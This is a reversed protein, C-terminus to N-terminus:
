EEVFDADIVDDDGDNTNIPGSAGEESQTNAYMSKAVEQLADNLAETAVKFSSHDDAKLAAQAGELANDLKGRSDPDINDGNENILKEAQYTLTDLGNREEVKKRREEDRDENDKADQIMREIDSDSMGSSNTITIKQEKNTAKDLASVNLIGDADLDFTVEIQPIGRPAPPLGELSFKGITRNGEAMKREGQLVHIEVNRQNDAATSVTESSKAPVTTNREILVTCVGGMTEIGLSLPTVDLLLMSDVKGSLIGGQVAAGAAVVEDPNVSRNPEKGFFAEVRKLVLPIRTSGGVLVVQDVDDPTKGADKLAMKCSKFTKDVIDNILQEFKARSLKVNLHKPGSENASFFPLSVECQSKSSLEKKTNEAVEKLRQM